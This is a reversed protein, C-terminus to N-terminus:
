LPKELVCMLCSTWIYEQEKLNPLLLDKYIIIMMVNIIITDFKTLKFTRTSSVNFNLNETLIIVGLTIIIVAHIVVFFSFSIGLM